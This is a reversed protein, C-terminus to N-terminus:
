FKCVKFNIDRNIIAVLLEEFSIKEIPYFNQLQKIKEILSIDEVIPFLKPKIEEDIFLELLELAYSAGEATGSEINDKVHMVSKSDYALSLLQYLLIYNAKLEEEIAEKLFEQGKVEDM